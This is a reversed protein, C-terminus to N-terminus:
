LGCYDHQLCSGEEEGRKQGDGADGRCNRRKGVEVAGAQNDVRVLVEVDGGAGDDGLTWMVHVCPIAEEVGEFGGGLRDLLRDDFGDVRVLGFPIPQVDDSHAIRRLLRCLRRLLTCSPLALPKSGHAALVALTALTPADLLVREAHVADTRIGSSSSGVSPAYM